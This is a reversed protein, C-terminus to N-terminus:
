PVPEWALVVLEVQRVQTAQVKDAIQWGESHHVPVTFRWHAGDLEVVFTERTGHKWPEVAIRMPELEELEDETFDRTKM